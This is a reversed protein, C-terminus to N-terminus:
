LIGVSWLQMDGGGDRKGYLRDKAVPYGVSACHVRIQHRIWQHIMVLCLTTNDAENYKIPFLTTEVRHKEGRWKNYDKPIRMAVMRIDDHIHHMIPYTITLGKKEWKEAFFDKISAVDEWEIHEVGFELVSNKEQLEYNTIGLEEHKEATREIDVRGDLNAIYLKNIKQEDQLKKYEEKIDKTKAFYLFGATDNDLRNLLWYEEEASFHQALPAFFPPNESVIKEVFSFQSGFTTPIGHPKRVFYYKDTETFQITM